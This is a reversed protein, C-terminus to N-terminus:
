AMGLGSHAAMRAATLAPTRLLAVGRTANLDRGSSLGRTTQLYPIRELCNHPKIAPSASVIGQAAARACTLRSLSGPQVLRTGAIMPPGIGVFRFTMM